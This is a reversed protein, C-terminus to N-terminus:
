GSPVATSVPIYLQREQEPGGQNAFVGVVQFPINAVTIWQGIPDDHDPFLFDRVPEGIVCTKRRQTVDNSQRNRALTVFDHLFLAVLLGVLAIAAPTVEATM